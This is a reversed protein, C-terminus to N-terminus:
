LLGLLWDRASEANGFAKTPTAPKSFGFYLNVLSRHIKSNSIIAIAPVTDKKQEAFVARARKDMFTMESVDVLNCHIIDQSIEGAVKSIEIADKECIDAKPLIKITLINSDDMSIRAKEPIEKEVM